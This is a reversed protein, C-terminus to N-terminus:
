YWSRITGDRSASILGGDPYAVLANVVRSHGELVVDCEGSDINWVRITSDFSASAVRLDPLVRLTRIELTHGLLEHEKLGSLLNWVIIIADNSGSVLRHGPVACLCRVERRHGTLVAACSMLQMDWVRVTCDCSGSAIKGGPLECVCWVGGTHGLLFDRPFISESTLLHSSFNVLPSKWVRLSKDRSASVLTNDSLVLICRVADTHRHLECVVSAIETDWIKISGDRSAAVFLSSSSDNKLPQLSTLIDGPSPLRVHLEWSLTNWVKFVLGASATVLRDNSLVCLATIQTSCARFAKHCSGMVRDWLRVFGDKAASIIFKDDYEMAIVIEDLHGEFVLCNYKRRLGSFRDDYLSNLKVILDKDKNVTAFTIPSTGLISRQIPARPRCALLADVRPKDRARVATILWSFKWFGLPLDNIAYWLEPIRFEWATGNKRLMWTETCLFALPYAM